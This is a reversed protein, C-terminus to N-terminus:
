FYLKNAIKIILDKGWKYAELFNITKDELGCVIQVLSKAEEYAFIPQGNYTGEKNPIGTVYNIDISQMTGAVRGCIHTHAGTVRGTAGMVGLPEGAKVKQGQTVYVKSMHAFYYWIGHRTKVRVYNGFGNEEYCVDCEGDCFTYVTDDDLGVVDLGDHYERKGFITRYGRPSTVRFQGKFCSLM